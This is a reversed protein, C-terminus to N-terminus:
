KDQNNKVLIYNLSHWTLLSCYWPNPLKNRSGIDSKILPKLPIKMVFEM